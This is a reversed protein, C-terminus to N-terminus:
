ARGGGERYQPNRSRILNALSAVSRFHKQNEADNAELKLGFKKQLAIGLELADISDLGLGEDGFLATDDGIDGAAVDELDLAGIILSKIESELTAM